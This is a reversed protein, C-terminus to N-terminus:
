RCARRRPPAPRRPSATRTCTARARGDPRDRGADGGAPRAADTAASAGSVDVLVRPRLTRRRWAAENEALSQEDWAGGAVYDHVEPPLRPRALPEFEDLALVADLDVPDPTVTGPLRVTLADSRRARADGARGPRAARHLEVDRARVRRRHARADGPRQRGRAPGIRGVAEGLPGALLYGIPLLSLSMMWDYSSVRSLRSPPIREALATEWWVGFLALGVGAVLFLPVLLWLTLGVAFGVDGGAM